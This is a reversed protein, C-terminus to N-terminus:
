KSHYQKCILRADNIWNEVKDVFIQPHNSDEVAILIVIQPCAVGTMEYLMMSYLTAQLFYSTIWEKRKESGSTKFDIISPIGNYDAVLDVSGAVKLRDSFLMGESCRINNVNHELSSKIQNYLSVTIPMQKKVDVSRNLVYDELILHVATGRVGGRKKIREAEKEGVRKKWKELGSKDTMAGLVSTVSPYLNGRPTEYYRVEGDIRKLTPLELLNLDFM